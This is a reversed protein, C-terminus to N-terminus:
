FTYGLRVGINTLGRNQSCLGANSLHEVTAIVSWQPTLRFGASASERFLPSCGLGAEHPAVDFSSTNGNHIAGGLTGEVFFRPTIDFSWTFGAYAFSTRGGLNASGGIHPRPIFLNLIPDASQFFRDFLIEGTISGSGSEPGSPDQASGGVRIESLFSRTAPMVLQAGPSAPVPDAALAPAGLCLLLPVCSVTRVTTGQSVILSRLSETGLLIGVCLRGSGDGPAFGRFEVATYWKPLM